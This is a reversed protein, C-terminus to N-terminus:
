ENKTDKDVHSIWQNKFDCIKLPNKVAIKNVFLTRTVRTPISPNQNLDYKCHIILKKKKLNNKRNM